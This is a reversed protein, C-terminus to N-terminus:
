TFNAATYVLLGVSVITVLVIWGVMVAGMQRYTLNQGELIEGLSMSPGIRQSYKIPVGRQGRVRGTGVCRLYRSIPADCSLLDVVLKCDIM